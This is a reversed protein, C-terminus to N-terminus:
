VNQVLSVGGLPVPEWETTIIQRFLFCLMTKAKVHIAVDFRSQKCADLLVVFEWALFSWTIKGCMKLDGRQDVERSGAMNTGFKAHSIIVAEWGFGDLSDWNPKDSKIQM